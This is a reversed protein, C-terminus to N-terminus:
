LFSQSSQDQWQQQWWPQCHPFLGVVRSRLRTGEEFKLVEGIGSPLFIWKAGWSGALLCFWHGCLVLINLRFKKEGQRCSICKISWQPSCSICLWQWQINRHTCEPTYSLQHHWWHRIRPQSLLSLQFTLRVPAFLGQMCLTEGNGAIGFNCIIISGKSNASTNCCVLLSMNELLGM